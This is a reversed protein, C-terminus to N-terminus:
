EYAVEGIARLIKFPGIYRLSLLGKREFIMLGKMPSVHLFLHDGFGFRLACLNHDAYAKKRNRAVILRDQIVRLRVLSDQLLDTDRPDLSPLRLVHLQLIVEGVM